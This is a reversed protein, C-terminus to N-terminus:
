ATPTHTDIIVGYQEFTHRITALRDAHTSKGSAFGYEASIKAFLPSASLDFEGTSDVAQWLARVQEADRGVLDFIFGRLQPRSIDM